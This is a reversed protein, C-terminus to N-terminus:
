NVRKNYIGTRVGDNFNIEQWPCVWIGTGSLLRKKYFFYVVVPEKEFFSYIGM